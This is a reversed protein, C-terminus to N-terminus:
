LIAPHISTAERDRVSFCEVWDRDDVFLNVKHRWKGDYPYATFNTVRRQRNVMYFVGGDILKEQIIHMYRAVETPHMEGMSNTNTVLDYKDGPRPPGADLQPCTEKLFRMQVEQLPAADALAVSEMPVDVSLAVARVLAGYGGGIELMNRAMFMGMSDPWSGRIRWAYYAARLSTASVFVGEDTVGGEPNGFPDERYVEPPTGLATCKKQWRRTQGMGTQIGKMLRRDRRFESWDVELLAKAANEWRKPWGDPGQYRSVM